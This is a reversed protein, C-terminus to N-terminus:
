IRCREAPEFGIEPILSAALEANRYALDLQNHIIQNWSSLIYKYSLDFRKAQPLCAEFRKNLIEIDRFNGASLAAALGHCTIHADWIHIGTKDALELTELVKRVCADCSATFFL